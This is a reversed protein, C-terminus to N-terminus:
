VELVLLGHATRRPCMRSFNARIPRTIVPEHFSAQRAHITKSARCKLFIPTTEAPASKRRECTLAQQPKMRTRALRQEAALRPTARTACDNQALTSSRQIAAFCRKARLTPGCIASLPTALRSRPVGRRQSERRALCSKRDGVRREYSVEVPGLVAGGVRRRYRNSSM